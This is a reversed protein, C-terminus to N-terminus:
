PMGVKAKFYHYESEKGDPVDSWEKLDNSGQITYSRIGTKVGEGNLAPDWTVVPKGDLVEIKVSFKSAPDNPSTGAVFEDVVTLAKGAGDTKGTERFVVVEPDYEALLGYDDLWKYPVEITGKKTTANGADPIWTFQDLWIRDGGERDSSDKEYKWKLVHDGAGEVRVECRRWDTIGDIWAVEESGIMFSGYDWWYPPLDTQECSAKWWFIVKGSGNVVTQIISTQDNGIEGSKMSAVGDHSVETDTTWVATGDGSFTMDPSNLSDGDAWKKTVTASAVSSDRWDDKVAIAKIVVSDTVKFPKEYVPSTVTPASGDMTYHIAAGETPCNMKVWLFSGTLVDTAVGDELSGYITEVQPADVTFWERTFTVTTVDSDSYDDKVSIMKITTTDDITFPGDYRTSNKTPTSGDLTYYITTGEMDCGLTVVEGSFHFVAGGTASMATPSNAKIWNRRVTVTNEVSSYDHKEALVRVTTTDNIVFPGVYKQSLVTPTTGDTTYYMTVGEMACAITITEGSFNFVLGGSANTIEPTSVPLWKRVFRKVAVESKLYDAKVAIARVTTTADITFPGTYRLSKETPSIGDLTYYIEAGELDCSLAVTEGSFNFTSEGSDLSIAPAPVRLWERTFIMTAVDSDLFDPHGTAIAKVTTTDDVTFPSVYLPSKNTPESGDTTYHIDAGDTDCVITIENGPFNFVEGKCASIQPLSCKGLGYSAVTVSSIYGEFESMAKIITKGTISFKKFVPSEITPTSGDVTFHTVADPYENTAVIKLAGEFITGDAPILTPPPITEIKCDGLVFGSKALLQRVRVEDGASVIIHKLGVCGSLADAGIVQVTTPIALTRLNTQGSFVADGILRTGLPISVASPCEGNVTLVCADKIVVGSGLAECGCFARPGIKTVGEPISFDVLEVCGEFASAGITKLNESITVSQLSDQGFFARDGIRKVSNPMSFSKCSIMNLYAYAYQARYEWEQRERDFKGDGIEVCDDNWILKLIHVRDKSSEFSFSSPESVTMRKTCNEFAGQRIEKVAGLFTLNTLNICSAFAGVRIQDVTKPILVSELASCDEFAYAEICQVGEGFEISKLGSCGYFAGYQVNAVTGPVYISTLGTCERFASEGLEKLTSPLTVEKLNSCDLFADRGIVELKSPFKVDSLARCDRFAYGGIAVLSDPLELHEINTESFSSNGLVRLSMPWHVNALSKCGNFAFQDITNVSNPIDIEVLKTCGSFASGGINTVGEPIIVATLEVCKLFAYDGINSVDRGDINSPIALSGATTTPVATAPLVYPSSREGGISLTDDPLVTYNWQIGTNSDVWTDAIACHSLTGVICLSILCRKM